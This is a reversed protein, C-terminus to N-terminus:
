SIHWCNKPNSSNNLQLVLYFPIKTTSGPLDYICKFKILYIIYYIYLLAYIYAHLNDAFPLKLIVPFFLMLSNSLRIEIKGRNIQITKFEVSFGCVM